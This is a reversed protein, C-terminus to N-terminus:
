RSVYITLSLFLPNRERANRRQRLIARLSLISYGWAIWFDDKREHGRAHWIAPPLLVYRYQIWSGGPIGASKFISVTEILGKSAVNWTSSIKEYAKGSDSREEVERYKVVNNSLFLATRVALDTDISEGSKPAEDEGEVSAFGRLDDRTLLAKAMSRFGKMKGTLLAIDRSHLHFPQRVWDQHTSLSVMLNPEKGTKGPERGSFLVSFLSTLRQQGDLVFISGQEIELVTKRVGRGDDPSPPALDWPRTEFPAEPGDWTPKWVLLAGIPYRRYLSDFLTRVREPSWVFGRQLDPLHLRKEAKLQALSRVKWPTSKIAIAQSSTGNGCGAM